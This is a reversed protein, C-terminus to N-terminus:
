IMHDQWLVAETTEFLQAYTNRIAEAQRSAHNSYRTPPIGELARRLQARWAGPIVVGQQIDEFDVCRQTIYMDSTKRLWNHLACAALTVCDVKEPTMDIANMLVRFRTVLIGFANEVIRRPYNFLNERRTPTTRYPKMLYSKLPFAADAVIVSQDPLNLTNNELAHALNSKQYVGGDSARGNTGVNVYSFCYDDDVLALLIIGTNIHKGDLAGICGPFNWKTRFGHEIRIWDERSPIRIYDKLANYIAECVEPLFISITSREVRYLAELTHLSDGTALYRLTVELKVKVPIANRMHTDQKQIASKVQSLLCDFQHPLMRMFNKYGTAHEVRMETLLQASAGLDQRRSIWDRVWIKRKRKKKQRSSILKQICQMALLLIIKNLEMRIATQNDM